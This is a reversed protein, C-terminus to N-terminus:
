RPGRLAPAPLRGGGAAPSSRLSGCSWRQRARALDATRSPSPEACLPRPPRHRRPRVWNSAAREASTVRVRAESRDPVSRASTRRPSFQGGGGVQQGSGSGVGARPRARAVEFPRVARRCCTRRRISGGPGHGLSSDFMKSPFSSAVARNLVTAAPATNRNPVVNRRNMGDNRAVRTGMTAPLSIPGRTLSSSGLRRISRHSPRPSNVRSHIRSGSSM